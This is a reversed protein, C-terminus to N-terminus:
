EEPRLGREEYIDRAIPHTEEWTANNEGGFIPTSVQAMQQLDSVEQATLSRFVSGENATWNGNGDFVGENEAYTETM